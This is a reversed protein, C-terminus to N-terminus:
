SGRVMLVSNPTGFDDGSGLPAAPDPAIAGDILFAYSYRGVPLKVEVEWTQGNASRRMPLTTPNWHNFDGVISVQAAHPAVVSFRVPFVTAPAPSPAAIVTSSATVRARSAVVAVGGGAMACLLGAAIAWPLSLSVRRTPKHPRAVAVERLVDARWEARVTPLERLLPLADSLPAPLRDLDDDRM